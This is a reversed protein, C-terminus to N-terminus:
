LTQLGCKLMVCQLDHSAQRGCQLWPHVLAKEVSGARKAFIPLLCAGDITDKDRGRM